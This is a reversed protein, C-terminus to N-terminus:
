VRLAVRAAISGSHHHLADASSGDTLSDVTLTLLRLTEKQKLLYSKAEPSVFLATPIKQPAPNQISM